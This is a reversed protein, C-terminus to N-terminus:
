DEVPAPPLGVVEEVCAADGEVAAVPDALTSEVAGAPDAVTGQASEVLCTPDAASATGTGLVILGVSAAGVALAALVKKKM